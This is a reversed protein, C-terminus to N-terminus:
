TRKGGSASSNISSRGTSTITSQLQRCAAAAAAAAQQLPCRIHIFSCYRQEVDNCLHSRLVARGDPCTTGAGAWADGACHSSRCNTATSTTCGCGHQQQSPQWGNNTISDGVGLGVLKRTKSTGKAAIPEKEEAAVVDATTTTWTPEASPTQLLRLLQQQPPKNRVQQRQQQRQQPQECTQRCSCMARLASASAM